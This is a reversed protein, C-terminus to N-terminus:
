KLGLSYYSIKSLTYTISFLLFFVQSSTLFLGLFVYRTQYLTFYSPVSISLVLFLHARLSQSFINLFFFNKSFSSLFKTTIMEKRAFFLCLCPVLMRYHNCIIWTWAGKGASPLTDYSCHVFLLRNFLQTLIIKLSILM